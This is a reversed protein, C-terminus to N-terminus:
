VVKVVSKNYARVVHRADSLWECSKCDCNKSDHNARTSLADVYDIGFALARYLFELPRESLNNFDDTSNLWNCEYNKACERCTIDKSRFSGSHPCGSLNVNAMVVRRPHALLKLIRRRVIMQRSMIKRGTRNVTLAHTSKLVPPPMPINHFKGLYPLPYPNSQCQGDIEVPISLTFLLLQCKSYWFLSAEL